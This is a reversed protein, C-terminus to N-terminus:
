GRAHRRQADGEDFRDDPWERQAIRAGKVALAVSDQAVHQDILIHKLQDM